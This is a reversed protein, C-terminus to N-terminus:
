TDIEREKGRERGRDENRLSFWSRATCISQLALFSLRPKWSGLSRIVASNPSIFDIASVDNFSM